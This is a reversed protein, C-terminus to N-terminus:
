VLSGDGTLIAKPHRFFVGTAQFPSCSNRYMQGGKSASIALVDLGEDPM